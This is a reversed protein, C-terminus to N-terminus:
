EVPLRATLPGVPLGPVTVIEEPPASECLPAVVAVPSATNEPVPKVLVPVILLLPTCILAPVPVRLLPVTVAM